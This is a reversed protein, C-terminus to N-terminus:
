KEGEYSKYPIRVAKGSDDFNYITGMLFESGKSVNIAINNIAEAM